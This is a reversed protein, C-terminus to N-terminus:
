ATKEKMLKSFTDRFKITNEVLWEIGIKWNEKNDLDFHKTLTIVKDRNNPNPNWVLESGIKNEIIEKKSEFAKDWALNSDDIITELRTNM